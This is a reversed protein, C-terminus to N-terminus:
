SKEEGGTWQRGGSDVMEEDVQDVKKM